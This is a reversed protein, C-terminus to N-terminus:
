KGSKQFSRIPSDTGADNLALRTILAAPATANLSAGARGGITIASAPRGGTDIILVGGPINAQLSSSGVVGASRFYAGGYSLNLTLNAPPSARPPPAPAGRRM